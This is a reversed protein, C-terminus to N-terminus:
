TELLINRANKWLFSTNATDIFSLKMNKLTQVNKINKGANKVYHDTVFMATFNDMRRVIKLVVFWITSCLLKNM